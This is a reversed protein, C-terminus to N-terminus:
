EKRVIKTLGVSPYEIAAMGCKITEAIRYEVQVKLSDLKFELPLNNAKYTVSSVELMWGCGDLAPDGYNLVMADKCNSCDDKQVINNKSNCGQALLLIVLLFFVNSVINM